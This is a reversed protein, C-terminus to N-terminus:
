WSPSRPSWRPHPSSSTWWRWVMPTARGRGCAWGSREAPNPVNVWKQRACRRLRSREREAGAPSKATQSYIPSRPFALHLPGPARVAISVHM